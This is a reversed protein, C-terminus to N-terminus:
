ATGERGSEIAAAAGVVGLLGYPLQLGGQLYAAFPPRLPADASLELTAGQIFTGAAMIVRNGYGPMEWPEPLVDSDVPSYRQVAQCFRVLKHPDGLVIAQIIDSRYGTPRPHVEYGLEAFLAAAFVATKLANAVHGPALFLGQLMLRTLGLSPGVHEGLGPATVRRAARRVLEARGALYGGTPALGGGPNKILSGAMLHAGVATPESEETFEGYCNDVLITADSRIALTRSAMDKIASISLSERLAYGRSRQIFVVLPRAKDARAVAQALRGLHEPGSRPMAVETYEVGLERLTGESDGELGIVARLTDYPAGTASILVTGPRCCGFFATALAHTGSVLQPRVLAAEANLALAFVQDTVERGRDGYGYGSTSAFDTERVGAQRFASWVRASVRGQLEDLGQYVPLARQWASGVAQKVRESAGLREAATLLWNPIM